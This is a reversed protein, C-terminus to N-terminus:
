SAPLTVRFRVTDDCGMQQMMRDMSRAINESTERQDPFRELCVFSEKWEFKETLYMLVHGITRQGNHPRKWGDLMYVCFVAHRLEESIEIRILEGTMGLMQTAIKRPMLKQCRMLHRTRADEVHRFPYGCLGIRAMTDVVRQLPTDELVVEHIM